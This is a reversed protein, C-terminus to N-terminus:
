EESQTLAGEVDAKTIRGDKGTGEIERLDIGEEGALEEAGATADIELVEGKAKRALAEGIGFRAQLEGASYHGVQKQAVLGAERCEAKEKDSLAGSLPELRTGNADVPRGREDLYAGGPVIQSM